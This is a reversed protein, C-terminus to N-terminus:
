RATLGAIAPLEDGPALPREVTDELDGLARQARALAEFHAREAVSREIEADDLDLGSQEGAQVAKRTAESRRTQMDAFRDAETLGDLAAAYLALARQSKSIVETQTQVFEAQAQRRRAEAEAIPGQNRNMLPLTAAFGLTFYNRKEEYTYGPGIDIDPYQKAIELQLSSEAAAYHALAARVDLRNLVADREIEERPLSDASPPSQWGPWALRVQELAAVPIGIAAALEAGSEVSRAAAETVATHARSLEVEATSVEQRSIEGASAMAELLRVQGTRRDDEARLLDLTRSAVWRDVLAARVSSRVTWAAQALELRAALDLSRAAQLRYGRKGATELPFSVDVTLLYPSPIGPTLALTPNPRAGATLIGAQSEAIRARAAELGPNFYLAALSLARYDWAPPPWAAAGYVPEAFAQLGPDDLTRATFAAATREAAIPAPHYHQAACGAALMAGLLLAWGSELARRGAQSGGYCLLVRKFM